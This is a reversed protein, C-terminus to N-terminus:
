LIQLSVPVEFTLGPPLFLVRGGQGVSFLNIQIKKKKQRILKWWSGQDFKIALQVFSLPFELWMNAM